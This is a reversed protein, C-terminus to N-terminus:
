SSKVIISKLLDILENKSIGDTEIDFYLDNIIFTIIYMNQYKSIKLQTNGIKSIKNDDKLYYDRLPYTLTSLAIRIQKNDYKRYEFVYDHLLDYKQIDINSRVYINYMNSIKFDKPVIISKIFQLNEPIDENNINEVKGDLKTESIEKISNIKLDIKLNEEYNKIKTINSNITNIYTLSFFAFVFIAASSIIFHIMKKKKNNKM